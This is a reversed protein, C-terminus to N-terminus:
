GQDGGNTRSATRRPRSDGGTKAEAVQKDWFAQGDEPKFVTRPAGDPGCGGRFPGSAPDFM